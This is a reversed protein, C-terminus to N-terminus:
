VCVVPREIEQIGTVIIVSIKLFLLDNGWLHNWEEQCHLVQFSLNTSRGVRSQHLESLTFHHFGCLPYHKRKNGKHWLKVQRPGQNTSLSTLPCVPKTGLSPTTNWVVSGFTKVLHRAPLNSSSRHRTASCFM